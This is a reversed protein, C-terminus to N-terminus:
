DQSDSSDRNPENMRLGRLEETALVRVGVTADLLKWALWSAAVTWGTASLAGLTQVALQSLRGNPLESTKGFIAVALV